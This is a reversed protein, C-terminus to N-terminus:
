FLSVTSVLRRLFLKLINSVHSPRVFYLFSLQRFSNLFPSRQHILLFKHLFFEFIFPPSSTTFFVRCKRSQISPSKMVKETRKKFLPITLTSTPSLTLLRSTVDTPIRANGTSSIKTCNSTTTTSPMMSPSPLWRLSMRPHSTGPSPLVMKLASVTPFFACPLIALHLVIPIMTWTQLM